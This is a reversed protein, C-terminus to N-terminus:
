EAPVAQSIPSKDQQVDTPEPKPQNLGRRIMLVGVLSVMACSVLTIPFGVVPILWGFIWIQPIALLTGLTPSLSYMSNRIKNPIVDLLERQTLIEAFGG